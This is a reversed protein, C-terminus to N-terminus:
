RALRVPERAGARRSSMVGPKDSGHTAIWLASAPASGSTTVQLRPARAPPIGWTVWRNLAYQAANLVYNTESTNIPTACTFGPTAAPPNLMHQFQVQAATGSGNDTLSITSLYDDAHSAGAVEWLRFGGSDAQQDPLYGPALLDTETEVALVPVGPDRRFFVVSPAPVDAQPSQSLAASGGGRSHVLFGDYENVL